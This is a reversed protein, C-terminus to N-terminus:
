TYPFTFTVKSTLNSLGSVREGCIAVDLTERKMARSGEVYISCGVCKRIEGECM